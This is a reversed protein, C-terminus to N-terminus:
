TVKRVDRIPFSRLHAEGDIKVHVEGNVRNIVKGFLRAAQSRDNAVQIRDGENLTNLDSAM